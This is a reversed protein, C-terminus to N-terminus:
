MVQQWIRYHALDGDSQEMVRDIATHFHSDFIKFTKEVGPKHEVMYDHRNSVAYRKVETLNLQFNGEVSIFIIGEERYNRDSLHLDQCRAYKKNVEEVKKQLQSRLSNIMSEDMLCRSYESAFEQIEKHANNKPQNLHVTIFFQKM